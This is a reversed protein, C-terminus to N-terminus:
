HPKSVDEVPHPAEQGKPTFVERATKELTAGILEGTTRDVEKQSIFSEFLEEMKDLGGRLMNLLEVDNLVQIQGKKDRILEFKVIHNQGHKTEIKELSLMVRFGMMAVPSNKSKTFPKIEKGFDWLNQLRTGGMFMVFPELSELMMGGVLQTFKPKPEPQNDMAWFGRSITLISVEVKKFDAKTPAYYFSGEPLYQGDDGENKSNSETIKLQPIQASINDSGAEANAKHFDAVEPSVVSTETKVLDKTM